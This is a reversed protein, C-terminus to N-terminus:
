IYGMKKLEDKIKTVDDDDYENSSTKDNQRYEILLIEMQQVIDPNRDAINTKEKPDNKLDYLFIMKESKKRSRIFKFKSTRLGIFSGDENNGFPDPSNEIYAYPEPVSNKKFLSKLSVGDIKNRIKLGLLDYITPLIDIQRVQQESSGHPVNTGSILLPIRIVDDFLLTKGRGSLKRLEEDDMTKAKLKNVVYKRKRERFFVFIKLGISEIIKPTKSKFLKFLKQLKPLSGHDIDLDIDFEGHDATLIIITENLDVKQLIKGIWIDLVHLRKDWSTKGFEDLNFEDPLNKSTHFDMLHIYYIWPESDKICELRKLIKDGLGEFIRLYPEGDVLDVEHFVSSLTQFFTQNQFTGYIHFNNNKLDDFCETANSHNKFWSIQHNFPYKGTFLSGLSPYTSDASSITNRFSFGKKFLLDINPTQATKNHDILKDARLSDVVILLINPKKM